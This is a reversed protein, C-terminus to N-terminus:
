YSVCKPLKWRLKCWQADGLLLRLVVVLGVYSGESIELNEADVLTRATGGEQLVTIWLSLVQSPSGAGGESGEWGNLCLGQVHM